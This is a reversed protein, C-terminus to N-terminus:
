DLANEVRERVSTDDYEAAMLHVHLNGAGAHGFTAIPFRHRAQLDGAFEILEVLRGRPVVIDENLKTLGTARLSNSFERRLADRKLIELLEHPHQM